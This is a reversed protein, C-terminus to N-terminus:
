ISAVSPFSPYIDHMFPIVLTQQSQHILYLCSAFLTLLVAQFMTKEYSALGLVKTECHLKLEQRDTLSFM